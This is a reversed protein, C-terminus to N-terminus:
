HDHNSLGFSSGCQPELRSMVISKPGVKLGLLRLFDIVSCEDFRRFEDGPRAPVDLRQREAPDDWNQQVLYPAVDQVNLWPFVSVIAAPDGADQGPPRGESTEVEQVFHDLLSGRDFLEYEWYDGDYVRILFGSCSLTGSVFLQAERRVDRQFAWGRDLTIVTWDGNM